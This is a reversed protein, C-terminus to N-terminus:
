HEWIFLSSNIFINVQLNWHVMVVCKVVHIDFSKSLRDATSSLHPSLKVESINRVM